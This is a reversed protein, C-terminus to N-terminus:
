FYGNNEQRAKWVTLAIGVILSILLVITWLLSSNASEPSVTSIAGYFIFLGVVNGAVNGLAFQSHSLSVFINRLIDVISIVIFVLNLSNSMNPTGTASSMTDSVLLVAGIMFGVVLEVVPAFLGETFGAIIAPPRNSLNM